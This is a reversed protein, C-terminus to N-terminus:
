DPTDLCEIVLQLAEDVQDVVTYLQLASPDIYQQEALYNFDVVRSWYEENYLIIPIKSIKRTQILTLIEMLEDLTGYGGPFVIVVKARKLFHMKRLSFYHFKFLFEDAVFPNPNQESPIEINLGISQRDVDVTGRNAAEMIGPGGGTIVKINNASRSNLFAGIERALRRAQEYLYSQRVSIKAENQAEKALKKDGKNRAVLKNANHLMIEATHRSEIRASGFFVITQEINAQDLTREVSLWENSIREAQAINEIDYVDLNNDNM